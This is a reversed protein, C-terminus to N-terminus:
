SGKIKEICKRNIDSCGDDMAATDTPPHKVNVMWIWITAYQLYALLSSSM